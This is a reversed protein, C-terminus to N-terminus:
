AAYEMVDLTNVVRTLPWLEEDLGENDYTAELEPVYVELVAAPWEEHMYNELHVNTEPFYEEPIADKAARLFGRADFSEVEIGPTFHYSVWPSYTGDAEATFSVEIAPCGAAVPLQVFLDKM